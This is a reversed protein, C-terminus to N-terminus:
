ITYYTYFNEITYNVLSYQRYPFIFLIHNIAYMYKYHIIYLYNMNSYKYEQECCNKNSTRIFSICTNKM